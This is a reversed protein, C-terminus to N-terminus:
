TRIWFMLTVNQDLVDSDRESGTENSEILLRCSFKFKNLKINLNQDLESGPCWPSSQVQEAECVCVCVCM